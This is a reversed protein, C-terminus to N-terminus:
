AIPCPTASWTLTMGAYMWKSTEIALILLQDGQRVHGTKWAYDLALPLAASGTNGVLSLNEFINGSVAVWEPTLLGAEKLEEQLYGTNGEPIICLDISEASVGSTTLIDTLSEALIYPTFKGSAQFDVRLEMREKPGPVPVKSGGATVTMGPKRDGGVSALSSSHIGGPEDSAQLVFAAAGDGFSYVSLRDRARITEPDKHLFLPVLIPSIAECGIVVATHYKGQELYLRAIDLAQVSGACGSRVEITACRKLGLKEQVLTVMPPLPFDPSSTSLVLLDVDHASLSAFTLAQEAAKTAMDSNTETHVGTTPNVLWHRREVQVQALLDPSLPGVLEELDTNTLPQGPLYSGTSVIHARKM